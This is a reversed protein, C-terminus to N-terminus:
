SGSGATVDSQQIEMGQNGDKAEDTQLNELLTVPSNLKIRLYLQNWIQNELFRQDKSFVQEHALYEIKSQSETGSAAGFVTLPLGLSRYFFSENRYCWPSRL